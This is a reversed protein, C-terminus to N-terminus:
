EQTEGDLDIPVIGMDETIKKIAAHTEGAAVAVCAPADDDTVDHMGEPMQIVSTTTIDLLFNGTEGDSIKINLFIYVTGDAPDPTRAGMRSEVHLEMDGAAETNVHATLETVKFDILEFKKEDMNIVMGKMAWRRSLSTMIYCKAPIKLQGTLLNCFLPKADAGFNHPNAM